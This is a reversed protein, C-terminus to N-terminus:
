AFPFTVRFAAGGGERADARVNGGLSHVHLAVLHLGLGTGRSTRTAENGVRYFAEFIREQEDPAIGPGRDLVELVAGGVGRRVVVRIKEGGPTMPAYKRANEVLNVLISPVADATTLVPPLGEALEFELDDVDSGDRLQDALARVSRALDAPYAEVNGASLRAKELVREVLTSLRGTERVIRRYYEHQKAPDKTWGDLLMEGHLKISSLPTRLEHTVAAVFNETRRAQELDRGVSRLLLAMGTSLSLALMLAVGFFRWARARFRQEIAATDAAIRLRALEREPPDYPEIELASVLDVEAHYERRGECCDDAKPPVYRQSSDLVSRALSEPLGRFLWDPDLFVGQVLGQRQSLRHLCPTLGRLFEVDPVFVRRTAAVCTEGSQMRFMQLHMLSTTVEVRTGEFHEAGSILCEEESEMARAAAVARLPLERPTPSGLRAARRLPGEDIHRQLLEATAAQLEHGPAGRGYFLDLRAEEGEHLDFSFWGLVGRPRPESLLPSPLLAPPGSEVVEAQYFRGYHTFPRANEVALTQELQEAIAERLRRAADDTERPVAKLEEDRDKLIQNWLLGGLVLTPLVLLVAYLSLATRQTRLQVM